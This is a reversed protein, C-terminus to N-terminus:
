RASESTTVSSCSADSPLSVLLAVSILALFLASALAFAVLRTPPLALAHSSPATQNV